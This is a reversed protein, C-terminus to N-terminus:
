VASPGIHESGMGLGPYLLFSTGMPGSDGAQSQTHELGCKFLIWTGRGQTGLHQGLAEDKDLKVKM